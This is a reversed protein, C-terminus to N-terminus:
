ILGFEPIPLLPTPPKPPAYAEPTHNEADRRFGREVFKEGSSIESLIPPSLEPAVGSSARPVRASGTENRFEPNFCVNAGEFGWLIRTKFFPAVM